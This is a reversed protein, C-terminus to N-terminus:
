ANGSTLTQKSLERSLIVQQNVPVEGTPPVPSSGTVQRNYSPRDGAPAFALNPSALGAVQMFVQILRYPCELRGHRPIGPQAAKDTPKKHSDGDPARVQPIETPRPIASDAPKPAKHHCRLPLVDTTPGHM